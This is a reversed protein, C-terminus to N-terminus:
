KIEAISITFIGTFILFLGIFHYLSLNEKFIFYGILITFLFNIGTALPSIISFKGLSLAKFMMLASILIIIFSLIVKVRFLFFFYDEITILQYNKLEKKIIGAGLTNFLAYLISYMVIQIFKSM